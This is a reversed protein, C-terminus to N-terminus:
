RDRRFHDNHGVTGARGARGPACLDPIMAWLAKTILENAERVNEARDGM